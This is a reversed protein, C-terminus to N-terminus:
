FVLEHPKMGQSLSFRAGLYTKLEPVLEIAKILASDVTKQDEKKEQPIEKKVEKEAEFFEGEGKKNKKEAVKGFYKDDFKEVNVGSIDVKTSTGIVYSQNVRRLPVGNIKFPGTVLLLGSSLQKLFVVRKGKFRGALIILVTGPTISSKLKTPKPKRRNALPKKVDEAPYFKAPKEVPADVKSKADHRPFVGGNKAKIAWLGRKHYMQSRSYKGVGRILDPNRSVKPTRQKAAPM